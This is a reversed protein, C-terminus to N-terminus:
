TLDVHLYPLPDQGGDFIDLLDQAAPHEKPRELVTTPDVVLLGAYGASRLHQSGPTTAVSKSLVDRPCWLCWLAVKGQFNTKTCNSWSWSNLHFSFDVKYGFVLEFLVMCRLHFFILRADTDGAASAISRVAEIALRGTREPRLFAVSLVACGIKVVIKTPLM